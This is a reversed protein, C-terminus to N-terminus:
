NNRDKRRLKTRENKLLDNFYQIYFETDFHTSYPDVLMCILTDTLKYLKKPNKLIKKRM